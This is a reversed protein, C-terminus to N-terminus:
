ILLQIHSIRVVAPQVAILCVTCPHPPRPKYMDHKVLYRCKDKKKTDAGAPFQLDRNFIIIIIVKVKGQLIRDPNHLFGVKIFHM